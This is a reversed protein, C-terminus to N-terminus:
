KKKKKELLLRCVLDSHSQLESTHEESRSRKTPLRRCHPRVPASPVPLLRDRSTSTCPAGGRHVGTIVPSARTRWTFPTVGGLTELATEVQQSDLPNGYSAFKRILNQPRRRM